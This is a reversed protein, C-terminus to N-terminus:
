VSSFRSVCECVRLPQQGAADEDAARKTGRAHQEAKASGAVEKAYGGTAWAVKPREGRENMAFTVKTGVRLCDGDRVASAHCFVDNGGDSPKIFGFDRDVLWNVVTGVKHGREPRSSATGGAASADPRTSPQAPRSMWGHAACFERLKATTHRAPDQGVSELQKGALFTIWHERHKTKTVRRVKHLLGNHASVADAATLAVREAAANQDTISLAATLVSADLTTAGPLASANAALARLAAGAAKQEVAKM